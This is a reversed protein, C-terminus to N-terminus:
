GGHGSTCGMSVACSETGTACTAGATGETSLPPRSNAPLQRETGSPMVKATPQSVIPNISGPHEAIPHEGEKRLIFALSTNPPQLMSEVRPPPLTGPTQLVRPASPAQSRLAQRPAHACAARKSNAMHEVAPPVWQTM